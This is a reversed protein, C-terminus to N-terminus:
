KLLYPLAYFGQRKIQNDEPLEGTKDRFYVEVFDTLKMNMDTKSAL